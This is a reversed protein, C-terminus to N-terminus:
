SMFGLTVLAANNMRLACCLPIVPETFPDIFLNYDQDIVMRSDILRLFTSIKQTAITEYKPNPSDVTIVNNNCVALMEYLSFIIHWHKQIVSAQNNLWNRFLIRNM